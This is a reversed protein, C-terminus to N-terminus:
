RATTYEEMMSRMIETDKESMFDEEVSIIVTVKSSILNHIMAMVANLGNVSILQAIGDIMIVPRENEEIFKMVSNMLTGLKSMELYGVKSKTSLGIVKVNLDKFRDNVAKTRGSTVALLQCTDSLSRGAEYILDPEDEVVYYSRGFKVEKQETVEQTSETSSKSFFKNMFSKSPSKDAGNLGAERICSLIDTSRFPKPIIGIVNPNDKPIIENNKCLIIVRIESDEDIEDLMRFTRLGNVRSDLVLLDPEFSGLKSVADDVDDTQETTWGESSLIESLIEQIAINDDVILAKM